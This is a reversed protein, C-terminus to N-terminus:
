EYNIRDIASLNPTEADITCFGSHRLTQHLGIRIAPIGRERLVVALHCLVSGEKFVFAITSPEYEAIVSLLSIDPYECCFVTNEGRARKDKETSDHMHIGLSDFASMDLHEIRGSRKGRSIIGESIDSADINGVDSDDVYDILYPQIGSVTEIIGFEVISDQLSFLQLFYDRVYKIEAHSLSVMEGSAEGDSEDCICYMVHGEIIKYWNQQCVEAITSVHNDDSIFYQSIPVIGKTMFFGKTIELYYGNNVRKITGTYKPDYIEQVITASIWYEPSIKESFNVLCADLDAHEPFERFGYRCCGIKGALVKSRDGVFSRIVKDSVIKPYVIVASYGTCNPSREIAAASIVPNESTNIVAIYADSVLTNVDHALLRLKVKDHSTLITPLEAMRESGVKATVSHIGTISTLPRCQLYYLESGRIAWEIDLPYGLDRELQKVHSALSLILTDEVEHVPASLQPKGSSYDILIDVGPAQGSLLRNSSGSTYSILMRNKYYTFPDSSFIVGSVDSEIYEQVIIGM